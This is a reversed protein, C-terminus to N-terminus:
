PKATLERFRLKEADFRENVKVMAEKNAKITRQAEEVEARKADYQQQLHAPAPKGDKSVAKIKRELDQASPQLQKLRAEASKIILNHHELARGRALDIEQETTYTALLARDKRAQEAAIKKREAAAAEAALRKQREEASETKKVVNGTKSLEANGQSAAAPPLTDTYHVNGQADVWKYMKAHAPFAAAVLLLPLWFKFAMNGVTNRYQM